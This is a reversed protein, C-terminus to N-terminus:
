AIAKAYAYQSRAASGLKRLIEQNKFAVKFDDKENSSQKEERRRALSGAAHKSLDDLFATLTERDSLAASPDELIARGEDSARLLQGVMYAMVLLTLKKAALYEQPVRGAANRVRESILDVLVIDAATVQENFIMTYNDDEFLSLVKVATWPQENYIACLLQAAADNAILRRDSILDADPKTVYEYAPYDRDFEAALRLQAGSLARLNRPNVPNQSNSRSAIERGLQHHDGLEIFKVMLLLEDTLFEERDALALVSQAGNVVSIGDLTLRGRILSIRNSVVTLGNHFALFNPHDSTKELAKRFTRSVRNPRLGKRVNLDFLSRDEIGPWKIIERATLAAIVQKRGDVEVTLTRSVPIRMTVTENVTSPGLVAECIPALRILDYAEFYRSGNSSNSATILHKAQSNLLGATLFVLRIKLDGSAIGERVNLRSILSRLEPELPGDEILADLAEVTRFANSFGIFTAVDNASVDKPTEPYKSQILVLTETKEEGGSAEKYMADIGRDDVGDCVYEYADLDNIGVVNRLYWLALISRERKLGEDITPSAVKKVLEYLRQRDKQNM